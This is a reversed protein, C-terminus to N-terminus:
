IMAMFVDRRGDRELEPLTPEWFIRGEVFAMVYFATGIVGNDECLLLPTAVPFDTHTALAHMVRYEREVAHASPLLIGPPKRRLVYSAKPGDLRYTPNSQGGPFQRVHLPGAFDEIRDSLYNELTAVDFELGSRFEHTIAM